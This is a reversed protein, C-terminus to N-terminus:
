MKFISVFRGRYNVVFLQSGVQLADTPQNLNEAIVQKLNGELDYVVLRSNEFDTVFVQKEGVFIGTMANMKETEGFTKLHKGTLDFVQVRHNYADAVWLKGHAFQVDTPYTLEGAGNGKKGFSLNADGDTLVIRHNYFDAVATKGDETDVGSPADFTEPFELTDNKGHHIVRIIDSGYEAVLLAADRTSIHMPRGFGPLTDLVKGDANIKFLRNNDADSLWLNGGDAPAIGVIGFSDLPIKKVFVWESASSSPTNKCGTWTLLATM